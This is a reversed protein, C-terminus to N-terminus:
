LAGGNGEDSAVPKRLSVEVALTIPRYHEIITAVAPGVSRALQELHGKSVPGGYHHSLPITIEGRRLLVRPQLAHSYTDLERGNGNPQDLYNGQSDTGVGLLDLYAHLPAADIVLSLRGEVRRLTVKVSSM